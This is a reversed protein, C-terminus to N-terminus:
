AARWRHRRLRVGPGPQRRVAPAPRRRRDGRGGDRRTFGGLLWALGPRGATPGTTARGRPMWGSSSAVSSGTRSPGASCAAAHRQRRRGLPVVRRVRRVRRDGAARPPLRPRRGQRRPQARRAVPGRRPGDLLAVQELAGTGGECHTLIPAGTRHHAEAAAEFVARDRASPGGTAAPSRSSAPGTRRGGSTRDRTTTRTSATPSTSSSGSPSRRSRSPSAGTPRDTTASTTCGPRPSSTSGPGGRCSPWSSPTAGATARCRMSSPASARARGGGRGRAGDPRRRRPRLRAGDRRAARRRHGPARPSYTVGLDRPAIDGLVTRVFTM